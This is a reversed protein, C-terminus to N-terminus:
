LLMIKPVVLKRSSICVVKKIPSFPESAVISEDELQKEKSESSQLSAGSQQFSKNIVTIVDDQDDTSVQNM